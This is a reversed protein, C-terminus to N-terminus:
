EERSNMAKFGTASKNSIFFGEFEKVSIGKLSYSVNTQIASHDNLCGGLLIAQRGKSLALAVAEGQSSMSAIEYADGAVMLYIGLGEALKIIAQLRLITENSVGKFFDAYDDIVILIPQFNSSGDAQKEVQRRQM